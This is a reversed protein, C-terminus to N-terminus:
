ILANLDRIFEQDQFAQEVEKERQLQEKREM